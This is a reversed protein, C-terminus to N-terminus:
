YRLVLSLLGALKADVQRFVEAYPWCRSMKVGDKRVTVRILAGIKQLKLRIM